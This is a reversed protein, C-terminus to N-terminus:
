DGKRTPDRRDNERRDPKSRREKGNSSETGRKDM